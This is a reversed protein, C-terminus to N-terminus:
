FDEEDITELSLNGNSVPYLTYEINYEVFNQLEEDKQYRTDEGFLFEEGYWTDGTAFSIYLYEAPVNVTAVDGARVYFCLRETGYSSKLKVVCSKGSSAKITITAGDYVREGSLIAGSYPEPVPTLGRDKDEDINFMLMIVAYFVLVGLILKIWLSEKWLKKIFNERPKKAPQSLQPAQQEVSSSVMDDLPSSTDKQIAYPSEDHEEQPKYENVITFVNCFDENYEFFRESKDFYVIVIFKPSNKALQESIEKLTHLRDVVYERIKNSGQQNIKYTFPTANVRIKPTSLALGVYTMEEMGFKQISDYHGIDKTYDVYFVREIRM